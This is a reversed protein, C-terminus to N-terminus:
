FLIQKREIRKNKFSNSGFELVFNLIGDLKQILARYRIFVSLINLKM